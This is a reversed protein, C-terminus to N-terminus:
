IKNKSETDYEDFKMFECGRCSIGYKDIQAGEFTKHIVVGSIWVGKKPEEGFSSHWQVRRIFLVEMGVELESFNIPKTNRIKVNKILGM